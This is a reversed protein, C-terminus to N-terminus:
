HPFLFEGLIFLAVFLSFLFSPWVLLSREHHRIIAMLGIVGSMFGSLMMFIGYLPLLRAQWTLNEPLRMFVWGNLVMMIVFLAMLGAAWWGLRTSPWRFSRRWFSQNSSPEDSPIESGARM